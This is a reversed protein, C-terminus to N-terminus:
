NETKLKATKTSAKPQAKAATRKTKKVPEKAARKGEALSDDAEKQAAAKQRAIEDSYEKLQVLILANEPILFTGLSSPYIFRKKGYKKGFLVTLCDNEQESIRGRGFVKHTVYEGCLNM